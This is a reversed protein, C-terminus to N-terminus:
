PGDLVREVLTLSGPAPSPPAAPAAPAALCLAALALLATTSTGALRHRM